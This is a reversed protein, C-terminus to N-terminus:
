TNVWARIGLGMIFLMLLGYSLAPRRALQARWVYALAQTIAIVVGYFVHFADAAEFGQVLLIVGATIQVLMVTTAIGAALWFARNPSRKLIALGIGWLGVLGTAVVAVYFWNAHFSRMGRRYVVTAAVRM